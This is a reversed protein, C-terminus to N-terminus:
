RATNECPVQNQTTTEWDGRLYIYPNYGTHNPNKPAEGQHRYLHNTSGAGGM